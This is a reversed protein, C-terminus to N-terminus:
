VLTFSATLGVSFQRPLDAVGFLGRSHIGKKDLVKVFLDSAGNLVKPSDDWMGYGRYYGDLHNLGELKEFGIKDHIQALVNLACLQMAQYGEQTNFDKGLQGQFLFKGNLIPFQIAVYAIQGRVNVSQYNGGPESLSPLQLGLASIRELYDM